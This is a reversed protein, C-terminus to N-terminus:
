PATRRDRGVTGPHLMAGSTCAIVPHSHGVDVERLSSLRSGRRIAGELDERSVVDRLRPYVRLAEARATAELPAPHNPRLVFSGHGLLWCREDIQRRIAAERAGFNATNPRDIRLALARM